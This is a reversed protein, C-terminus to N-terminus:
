AGTEARVTQTNDGTASVMDRPNPIRLRAFNLEGEMLVRVRHQEGSEATISAPDDGGALIVGGPYHVGCVTLPNAQWEFVRSPYSIGGEAGVSSLEDGSAEIVFRPDPFRFRAPLDQGLHAMAVSDIARFEARIAAKDNCGAQIVNSADPKGFAMLRKIRVRDQPVTVPHRMSNETRVAM